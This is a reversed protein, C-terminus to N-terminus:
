RLVMPQKIEFQERGFGLIVGVRCPCREYALNWQCKQWQVHSEQGIYLAVDGRNQVRNILDLSRNLTASVVVM